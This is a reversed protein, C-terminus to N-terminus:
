TRKGERVIDLFVKTLASYNQAERAYLYFYNLESNEGDSGSMNRIFAYTCESINRQPLNPFNIYIREPSIKASFASSTNLLVFDFPIKAQEAYEKLKSAAKLIRDNEKDTEIKKLVDDNLAFIKSTQLYGILPSFFRFIIDLSKPPDSQKFLYSYESYSKWVAHRRCRREFYENILEETMHLKFKSLIDIDSLLKLGGKDPSIGIKSLAEISFVSKIFDDSSGKSELSAIKEICAKLLAADYVVVPHSIIWQSEDNKAKFVNDIISLANKRFAPLLDEYTYKIASVSHAIRYIDIPTNDFGSMKADRTIYDLKDVDISESNLLRILCNKVGVIANDESNCKYTCGIVMRASLELDVEDIRDKLFNSAYKVLISASIIEHSNPKVEKYESVFREKKEKGIGEIAQISLVLDYDIKLQDDVQELKYYNECTHSFPAHGIDHLLAAYLFSTKLAEKEKKDMQIGVDISINSFFSDILSKAIHYTGLSHVFRDHRASPYLVRFSGQEIWKLRQFEITDIISVFLEDIEIYGHVADKIIKKKSM